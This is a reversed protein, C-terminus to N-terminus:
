PRAALRAVPRRDTALRCPTDRLATLVGVYDARRV